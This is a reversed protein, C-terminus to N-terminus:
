AAYLTRKKQRTNLTDYSQNYIELTKSYKFVANNDQENMKYIVRDAM